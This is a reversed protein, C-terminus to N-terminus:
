SPGGPSTIRGLNPVARGEADDIDAVVLKPWSRRWDRALRRTYRGLDHEVAYPTPRVVLRFLDELGLPAMIEVLDDSGLRVALASATEPFKALADALDRYPADGGLEHMRAQNKVSWKVNPAAQSLAAELAEDAQKTSNAADFRVVDVDDLPTAVTFGHGADWVLNRVAGGTIWCDPDIDRLVDLLRRTTQDGSILRQLAVHADTETPFVVHHTPTRGEIEAKRAEKKQFAEKAALYEEDTSPPLVETVLRYREHISLLLDEGARGSPMPQDLIDDLGRIFGALVVISRHHAAAHDGFRYVLDVIVLVLVALLLLNFGFEVTGTSISVLKSLEDHIRDIGTFGAFTLMASAVILVIKSGNSRRTMLSLKHSHIRRLVEAGKRYGALSTRVGQASVDETPNPVNSLIAPETRPLRRRRVAARSTGLRM